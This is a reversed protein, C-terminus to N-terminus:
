SKILTFSKPIGLDWFRSRSCGSNHSFYGAVTKQPRRRKKRRSSSPNLTAFPSPRPPLFRSRAFLTNASTTSFIVKQPSRSHYSAFDLDLSVPDPTEDVVYGPPIAIDFSDRWRGPPTSISPISARSTTLLVPSPASSAPRVLLLPGAQHSYQRATVKFHLEIPKNLSSPEIFSFADLTVGPLTEAV